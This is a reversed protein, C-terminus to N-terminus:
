DIPKPYDIPEWNGCRVHYQAYDPDPVKSCVAAKRSSQDIVMVSHQDMKITQLNDGGYCGSLAVITIAMPIMTKM